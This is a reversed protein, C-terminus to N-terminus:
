RKRQENKEELKSYVYSWITEFTKSAEGSSDILIGGNNKCIKIYEDRLIHQLQEDIYRDKEEPRSRVRSIAVPVSVDLFFSIDPRTINQSIEYIWSDTVYGRARLNALCSYFYRDSLVIDGKELCPIIMQSNHQIRDAAALLSLARYEYGSHDELDMYTRFIGAKRVADTPQKTLKISYGQRELCKSLMRIMTSKGCGDLGCFSILLGDTKHSKMELTRM